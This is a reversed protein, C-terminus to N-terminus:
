RVAEDAKGDPSRIVAVLAPVAEAAAPGMQGLARACAQRVTVQPDNLGQILTPVADKAIAGMRAIARAAQERLEPDPDSLSQILVPVAPEGIRALSDVATEKISWSRYPSSSGSKASDSAAPDVTAQLGRVEDPSPKGQAEPKNAGPNQGCAPLTLLFMTLLLVAPLKAAGNPQQAFTM